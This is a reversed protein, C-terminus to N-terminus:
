RKLSKSVYNITHIPCDGYFFELSAHLIRVYVFFREIESFKRSKYNSVKQYFAEVIENRPENVFTHHLSSNAIFLCECM